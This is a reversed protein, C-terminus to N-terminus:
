QERTKILAKFGDIRVRNKKIIPEIYAQDFKLLFSSLLYIVCQLESKATAYLLPDEEILTELVFLDDKDNHFFRGYMFYKMLQKHTKIEQKGLEFCFKMKSSNQTNEENIDYSKWFDKHGKLCEQIPGDNACWGSVMKRVTPFYIHEGSLMFPRLENLTASLRM